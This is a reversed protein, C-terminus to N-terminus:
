LSSTPPKPRILELFHELSLIVHPTSRNRAFIVVPKRDLCNAQAQAIWEWVKATECNKGEISIPYIKQAAPSLKLDEGGASGTPIVIDDPHLEPAHHLLREKIHQIHRRGKAKCSSTKM